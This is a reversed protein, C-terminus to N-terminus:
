FDIDLILPPLRSAINSLATVYWRNLSRVLSSLKTGRFHVDLLKEQVLEADVTFGNGHPSWWLVEPEVGDCLCRM